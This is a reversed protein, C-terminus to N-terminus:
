EFSYNHVTPTDKYRSGGSNLNGVHNVFFIVAKAIQPIVAVYSM